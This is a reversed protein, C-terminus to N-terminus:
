LTNWLQVLLVGGMKGVRRKKGQQDFELEPFPKGVLSHAKDM